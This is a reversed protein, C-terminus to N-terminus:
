AENQRALRLALSLAKDAHDSGDNANLIKAFM